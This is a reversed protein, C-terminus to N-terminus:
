FDAIEAMTPLTASIFSSIVEMLPLYSLFLLATTSTLTESVFVCSTSTRMLFILACSCM